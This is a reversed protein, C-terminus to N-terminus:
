PRARALREMRVKPGEETSDVRAKRSRVHSM